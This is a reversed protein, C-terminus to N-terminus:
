TEILAILGVSDDAFLRTSDFSVNLRKQRKGEGLDSKESM